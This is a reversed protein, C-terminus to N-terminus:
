RCRRPAAEVYTSALAPADADPRLDGRTPSRRKVEAILAVPREGVATGEAGDSGTPRLAKSLRRVPPADGCAAILEHLPRAAERVAVEQEKWARIDDLISM